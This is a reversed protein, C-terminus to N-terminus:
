QRFLGPGPQRDDVLHGLKRLRVAAAERSVVFTEVVADVVRDAIPSAEPVPGFADLRELVSRVVTAVATRPMLLSGSAYAAQWELWDVAPADVLTGRRCATLPESQVEFIPMTTELSVLFGHLRVHGFEHSLTTRLRNTRRTDTSLQASIRVRPPGGIVFETVGEVDAGEASLDAYLDLESVESELLVTLDDTSLPFALARGTSQRFRALVSECEVDLEEPAWHPRQPFRGTRDPVWKM